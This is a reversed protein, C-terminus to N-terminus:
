NPKFIHNLLKLRLSRQLEPTNEKMSNNGMDQLLIEEPNVALSENSTKININVISGTGSSETSLGLHDIGTAAIAQLM